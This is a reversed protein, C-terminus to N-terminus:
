VEEDKLYVNSSNLFDSSPVCEDEKDGKIKKKKERTLFLVISIITIIGLILIVLVHM